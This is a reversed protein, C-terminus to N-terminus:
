SKGVQENIRPRVLGDLSDKNFLLGETMALLGGESKNVEKFKGQASYIVEGHRNEDAFLLVVSRAVDEPLQVPVGMAQLSELPVM